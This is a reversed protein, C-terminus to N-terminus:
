RADRIMDKDVLGSLFAGSQAALTKQLTQKGKRIKLIRHLLIFLCRYSVKWCSASHSTLLSDVGTSNMIYEEAISIRELLRSLTASLTTLTESHHDRLLVSLHIKASCREVQLRRTHFRELITGAEDKGRFLSELLARIHFEVGARIALEGLPVYHGFICSAKEVVM